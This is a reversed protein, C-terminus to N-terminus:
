MNTTTTMMIKLVTMAKTRRWLAVAVPVGKVAEVVGLHVAGSGAQVHMAVESPASDTEVALHSPNISCSFTAKYQECPFHCKSIFQEFDHLKWFSHLQEKKNAHKQM